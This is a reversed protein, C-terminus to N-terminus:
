AAMRRAPRAVRVLKAKPRSLPLPAKSSLLRGAGVGAAALQRVATQPEVGDLDGPDTERIGGGRVGAIGGGAPLGDAGQLVRAALVAGGALAEGGVEAVFVFDGGAGGADLGGAEADEHGSRAEVAAGGDIFDFEVAGGDDIGVLVAVPEVVGDFRGEAGIGFLAALVGSDMVSRRVATSNLKQAALFLFYVMSLEGSRTVQSGISVSMLPRPASIV